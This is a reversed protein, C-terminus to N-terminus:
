RGGPFVAQLTDLDPLVLIPVDPDFQLHSPAVRSRIEIGVLKRSALKATISQAAIGLLKAADDRSISNAALQQRQAFQDSLDAFVAKVATVPDPGPGWFVSTSIMPHTLPQRLRWDPSRRTTQRMLWAEVAARLQTKDIPSRPSAPAAADADISVIVYGSERLLMRSSRANPHRWLFITRSAVVRENAAVPQLVFFATM